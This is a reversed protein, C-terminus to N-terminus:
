KGRSASVPGATPGTGRAEWVAWGSEEAMEMKEPDEGSVSTVNGREREHQQLTRGEKDM